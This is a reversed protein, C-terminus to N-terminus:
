LKAAGAQPILMALAKKPVKSVVDFEPDVLETVELKMEAGLFLAVESDSLGYDHKIWTALQATSVKLAEQLSGAVGFSIIYDDDEERVGATQYGKIVEVSFDVDMSTELGTQTVEGDAMAAHGDGFGFLAGPHFVPFFMTTGSVTGNYDLNGGYPGLHPGTFAEFGAPAVSICGLMPKMEVKFNKLAPTPETLVAIGTANDLQYEGNFRPDYKAALNYAPTTGFQQIRSGQRATKRNPTIKILHVVLTDGPLAGEVYIPGINANGGLALRKMNKDVGNSDVSWTHVIDGPFIHIGPKNGAYYYAQFTTPEYHIDRPITPPVLERTLKWQVQQPPNVRGPYRRGLGAVEGAGEGSDGSVKGTLSGAGTGAEDTLSLTISTGKVSGKLNNEGWKGSLTDGSRDLAVRAYAPELLGPGTMEAVWKGSVEAACSVAPVAAFFLLLLTWWAKRM